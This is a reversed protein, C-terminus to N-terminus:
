TAVVCADNTEDFKLQIENAKDYTVYKRLQSCEPGLPSSTIQLGCYPEPKVAYNVPIYLKWVIAHALLFSDRICM